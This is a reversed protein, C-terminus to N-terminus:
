RADDLLVLIAEPPRGVVARSGRWLIPREILIPHLAMADLLVDDEAGVDLGCERWADEGRRVWERAPRDLAARLRDLEDRGLPREVYRREEYAVGRADLLAKAARSKSCRPEHLLM